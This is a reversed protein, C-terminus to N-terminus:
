AKRHKHPHLMAEEARDILKEIFRDANLPQDKAIYGHIDYLDYEAAPNWRLKM